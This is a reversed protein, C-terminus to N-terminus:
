LLQEPEVTKFQPIDDFDRDYTCIAEAGSVRCTVAHLAGRASLRHHM